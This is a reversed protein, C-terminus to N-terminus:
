EGRKRWVWGALTFLLGLLILVFKITASISAIRPCSNTGVGILIRWLALNEIADLLGALLIGWGLLAGLQAFKGGHKEGAMLVALSITLGYTLMFLYDIGLSFSAFLQARSDWSQLISEAKQPTGALEFSVIGNPAAPTQLPGDLLRFVGVLVLTLALLPLFTKKYASAPIFDLPHRM